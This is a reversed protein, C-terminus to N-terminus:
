RELKKESPFKNKVIKELICKVVIACVVGLVIGGLIDTPYHVFLYMRSFAIMGAVIFAFIGAKKHYLFIACAAAFSSSTHGSPFSYDSATILPIVSTDVSFPRPRQFINKLILNGCILNLLLAGLMCIGMKRRMSVHEKKENGIAPVALLLVGTLIWLLGIDGLKTIVLMISDLLETRIGQITHLIELEM